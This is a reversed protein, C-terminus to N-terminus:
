NIASHSFDIIVMALTGQVPLPLPGVALFIDLHVGDGSPSFLDGSLGLVAQVDPLNTVHVLPMQNILLDTKSVAFPARVRFRLNRDGINASVDESHLTLAWKLVGTRPKGQAVPNDLLTVVDGSSNTILIGEPSFDGLIPGFYWNTAMHM